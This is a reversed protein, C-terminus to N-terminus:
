RRRGPRHRVAYGARYLALASRRLLPRTAVALVPRRLEPPLVAYPGVLGRNLPDDYIASLQRRLVETEDPDAGARAGAAAIASAVAIGGAAAPARLAKAYVGALGRANEASTFRAGAERIARVHADREVGPRLVALARRASEHPDWPMLLAADTPLIEALSTHSAFLCPTGADAAEFPTLGFGESTTPYVLAAARELLWRKVPEPVAGLDRVRERLAPRTSLYEAEEGASSGAAVKPGAFVLAADFGQEGLAELLRLAFLRNKHLFDTGLCLLFPRRGIWEADDPAVVSDDLGLASLDNAPYVVNIRDPHVLGLREADVASDRSIFVVQDAGGLALRGLQRYEAWDDYDRFYAPNRLAINDLQTLVLREGLGSLLAVDDRSAVQYPRHVVDAPPTAAIEHRRLLVVRSRPELFAAAWAGLDDPVLVRLELDTYTELAGIVGLTVLQTGTVTPGLCRGDVTV